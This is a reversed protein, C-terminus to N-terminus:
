SLISNQPQLHVSIHNSSIKSSYLIREKVTTLSIYLYIILFRSHVIIKNNTCTQRACDKCM